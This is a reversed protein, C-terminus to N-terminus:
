CQRVFINVLQWRKMVEELRAISVAEGNHVVYLEKTEGKVMLNVLTEETLRGRPKDGMTLCSFMEAIEAGEKRRKAEQEEQINKCLQCESPCKSHLNLKKEHADRYRTSTLADSCGVIL